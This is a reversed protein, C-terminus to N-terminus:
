PAARRNLEFVLEGKRVTISQLAPFAALQEKLYQEPTAGHVPRPVSYLHTVDRDPFWHSLLRQEANSASGLPQAAASAARSQAARARLIADMPGPPMGHEGRLYAFAEPAINAFRAADRINLIAQGMVIAGIPSALTPWGLEQQVLVCEQLVTEVPVRCEDAVAAAQRLLAVPIQFREASADPLAHRGRALNHAAALASFYEDMETIIDPIITVPTHWRSLHEIFYGASPLSWGGSLTETVTHLVDAGSSLADFCSMEAVGSRCHTKFEIPLAGAAARVASLLNRAAIPNISGALDVLVLSHVRCAALHAARQAYYRVDHFPSRLYILAASVEMGAARCIVAIREIAAVDNLADLCTIRRVGCTALTEIGLELLDQTSPVSGLLCRSSIWVNAPTKQLRACGLRLVHLPNEQRRVICSALEPSMLDIAGFGGDDMRELYPFLLEVSVSGNWLATQASCLSSDVFGVPTARRTSSNVTV